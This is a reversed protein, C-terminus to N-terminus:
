RLVERPVGMEIGGRGSSAAASSKSTAGTPSKENTGDYEAVPYMMIQQLVTQIAQKDEPTDDQFVRPAIFGTNTPSRFVQTIGKPAEGHWNPGALLYFGPATGYMKGLQVSSDTRLDVVQYVWFRDGFDPVQIM